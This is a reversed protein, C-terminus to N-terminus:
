ERDAKEMMHACYNCYGGNDLAELMECYPITNACRACFDVNNAEVVYREFVQRQRESLNDTDGDNVVQMAVGLAAGELREQEILEKIFDLLEQDM